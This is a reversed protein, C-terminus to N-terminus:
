SLINFAEGQDRHATHLALSVTYMYIRACVNICSTQPITHAIYALTQIHIYPHTFANTHM